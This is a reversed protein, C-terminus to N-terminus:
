RCGVGGREKGRAAVARLLKAVVNGKEDFVTEWGRSEDSDSESGTSDENESGTTTTDSNESGTNTDENECVSTEDNTSAPKARARLLKAVVNGKKDLVTEWEGSNESGTSDENVSAPRGRSGVARLVKAVLNGNEDLVPEWEGSSESGTSDENEPRTTSEENAIEPRGRARLLTAVENGKEDLVAERVGSTEDSERETGTTDENETGSTEENESPSTDENETGSTEENESETTQGKASGITEKMGCIHGKEFGNGEQRNIELLEKASQTEQVLSDLRQQLILLNDATLM